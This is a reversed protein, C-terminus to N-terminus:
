LRCRGCCLCFDMGRLDAFQLLRSKGDFDAWYEKTEELSAKVLDVLFKITRNPAKTRMKRTFHVISDAHSSSAFDYPLCPLALLRSIRSLGDGNDM